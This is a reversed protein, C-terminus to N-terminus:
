GKRNLHERIVLITIVYYSVKFFPQFILSVKSEIGKLAFFCSQHPKGWGPHYPPFFGSLVPYRTGPKPLCPLGKM